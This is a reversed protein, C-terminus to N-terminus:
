FALIRKDYGNGFRGKRWEWIVYAYVGDQRKGKGDGVKEGM